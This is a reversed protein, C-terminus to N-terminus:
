KSPTLTPGLHQLIRAEPGMQKNLHDGNLRLGTIKEKQPGSAPMSACCSQRKDITLNVGSYTNDMMTSIQSIYHRYTVLVANITTGVGRREKKM